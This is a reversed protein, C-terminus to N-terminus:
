KATQSNVKSIADTEVKAKSGEKYAEAIEGLFFKISSVSADNGVIPYTVRKLDCDSNSISIVPINMKRAEAVAISEKKSDVVFVAAPLNKLSALGAFYKELRAIERDILLREKKTYVQTAGKERNELLTALKDIRKKIEPFNTLTGGIWREVVYPQGLEEAASKVIDRAEPKSGVFVMVRGAAALSKVFECAKVSLDNIKELNLIDVRNKTGLVFPKMSPHRRTKTYGFHAGAALMEDIKTTSKSDM